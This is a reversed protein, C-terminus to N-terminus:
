LCTRTTPTVRSSSRRKPSLALARRTHCTRGRRVTALLVPATQSTARPFWCISPYSPNCRHSAHHDPFLTHLCASKLKIYSVCYHYTESTVTESGTSKLTTGIENTGNACKPFLQVSLSTLRGSASKVTRYLEINLSNVDDVYSSCVRSCYRTKCVSCASLSASTKDCKACSSSNAAADPDANLFVDM